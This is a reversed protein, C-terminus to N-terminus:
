KYGQSNGSENPGKKTAVFISKHNFVAEFSIDTIM